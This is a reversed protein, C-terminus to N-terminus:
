SVSSAVGSRRSRKAVPSKIASGCSQSRRGSGEGGVLIRGWWPSVLTPRGDREREGKGMRRRRDLGLPGHPAAGARAGARTCVVPSAPGGAPPVSPEQSGLRRHLFHRKNKRLNRYLRLTARDARVQGPNAPTHRNWSPPRQHEGGAALLVRSSSLHRLLGCCVRHRPGGSAEQECPLRYATALAFLLLTFMVHVRVARATRQPPHKLSWQQKSEKSIAIRSSVATMM